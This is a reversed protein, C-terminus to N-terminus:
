KFWPLKPLSRQYERISNGGGNSNMVSSRNCKFSCVADVEFSIRQQQNTCQATTTKWVAGDEKSNM